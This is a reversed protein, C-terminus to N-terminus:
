KTQSLRLPVEFWVTSGGGLRNEAGIQGGMLEVLRKFISLGLGAGGYRRTAYEDAQQFKQFLKSKAEQSLGSVAQCM